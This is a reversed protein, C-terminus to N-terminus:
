AFSSFHDQKNASKDINGIQSSLDVLFKMCMPFCFWKKLDSFIFKWIKTYIKSRHSYTEVSAIFERIHRHNLFAM